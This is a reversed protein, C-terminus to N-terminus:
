NIDNNKLKHIIKLTDISEKFSCIRKSKLKIFDKIQENFMESRDLNNFKYYKKKKTKNFYITLDKNFYNWNVTGNQFNLIMFHQPPYTLFNMHLLMNAKNNYTLIAQLDDEVDIQLLSNKSTISFIKNPKGILYLFLDITHSLCSVVGGGKKKIGMHTKTYDEYSHMLPLYEGFYLNGSILNGLKKKKITEKIIEIGPHFRLQYGIFINLKKKLIKNIELIESLDSAIPKEIFFNESCLIFKKLVKVHESIENTIFIYNFKNKLIENESISKINYYKFIDKKLIKLNDDIVFNKRSSKRCYIQYDKNKIIKRLARVHKQGASGLGFFLVKIM